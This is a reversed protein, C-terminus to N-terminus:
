NSKKLILVIAHLAINSSVMKTAQVVVIAGTTNVVAIIIEMMVIDMAKTYVVLVVHAKAVKEKSQNVPRKQILVRALNATNSSARKEVRAVVIAVMTNADAIIIEMMVFDM